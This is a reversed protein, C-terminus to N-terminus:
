NYFTSYPGLNIIVPVSIYNSYIVPAATKELIFSNNKRFFIAYFIGVPEHVPHMPNLDM